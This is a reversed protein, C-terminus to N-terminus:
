IQQLVCPSVELRVRKGLHGYKLYTYYRYLCKRIKSNPIIQESENQNNIYAERHQKLEDGWCIWECPKDGCIWCIKNIDEDIDEEQM